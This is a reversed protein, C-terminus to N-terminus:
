RRRKPSTSTCSKMKWGTVSMSVLIAKEIQISLLLMQRINVRIHRASKMAAIFTADGCGSLDPVTPVVVITQSNDNWGVILNGIKTKSGHVFGYNFWGIDETFGFILKYDQGNEVVENFLERMKKRNADSKAMDVQPGAFLKGFLGM